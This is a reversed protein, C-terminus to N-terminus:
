AGLGGEGGLGWPRFVTHRLGWPVGSLRVRLGGLGGRSRM